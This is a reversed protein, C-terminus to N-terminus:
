VGSARVHRFLFPVLRPRARRHDEVVPIRNTFGIGVSAPDEVVIEQQQDVSRWLRNVKCEGVCLIPGQPVRNNVRRAVIVVSVVARSVGDMDPWM